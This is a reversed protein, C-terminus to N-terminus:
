AREEGRKGFGLVFSAREGEKPWRENSAPRELVMSAHRCSIVKAPVVGRLSRLVEGDAAVFAVDIPYGMGFTHISRCPSLMVPMAGADTGLLGCLREWWGSLIRFRLTDEM